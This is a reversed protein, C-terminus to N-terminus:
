GRRRIVIVTVVYLLGFGWTVYPWSKPWVYDLPEYEGLFLSVLCWMSFYLVFFFVESKM